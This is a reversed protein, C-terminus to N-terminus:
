ERVGYKDPHIERFWPSIGGFTDGRARQAPDIDDRLSHGHVVALVCKLYMPKWMRFIEGDSYAMLIRLYYIVSLLLAQM